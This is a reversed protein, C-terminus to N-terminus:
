EKADDFPHKKFFEALVAVLKLGTEIEGKIDARRTFFATQPSLKGCIIERFTNTNLVFSCQADIDNRSIKDIAGCVISVSWPKSPSDNLVVRFSSTLKKLGPLLQRHLKGALFESFYRDYGLVSQHVQASRGWNVSRAYDLIKRFYALDMIPMEINSDVLAADTNSRDFQPESVMYPAYIASAKKFIREARTLKATAFEDPPILKIKGINFLNSFIDRLKIITMPTPHTIHYRGPLANSIIHWAAKAFYDVSILNTTVNADASVRIEDSGLSPAIVEFARLFDYLTNFKAIHGNHSDGIIISPRLVITPLGTRQSWQQVLVEAEFKTREYINNFTQSIDLQKEVFVNNGKGAVYATSVHVFPIQWQEALALANRTGEVNTMRSLEFGSDHFSTCAACHIISGIESFKQAALDLGFNQKVVDGNVAVVQDAFGAVDNLALASELRRNMEEPMEDRMLALVRVGDRVAEAALRSGVTGTIGTLFIARGRKM